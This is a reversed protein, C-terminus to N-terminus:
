FRAEGARACRNVSEIMFNLFRASARIQIIAPKHDQEPARAGASGASFATVGWIDAVGATLVDAAIGGAGAAGCDGVLFSCPAALV